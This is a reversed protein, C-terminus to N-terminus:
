ADIIGRRAVKRNWRAAEAHDLPVGQGIDYLAGLNFEPQLDGQSAAKRYWRAGEGEDLRVSRGEVYM